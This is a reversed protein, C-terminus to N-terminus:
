CGASARELMERAHSRAQETVTIGGLMRALEEVRAQDNLRIVTTATSGGSNTKHVQMHTHCLSAVQPLHTVCFVQRREGLDRLLQGVIEAVRGSIGSDVEDFVLTPVVKDGLACVQIALSIRSLEGGSAIKILPRFPQGANSRILFEVRDQGEPAPDGEPETSIEVRLASAPMGLGRLADTVSKALQKASKQRDETLRAAADRYDSIASDLERQLESQRASATELAGLRAELDALQEPLDRLSVHHKRALEHLTGLREEVEALREPDADLGDIVQAVARGAEEINIAASEVLEIAEALAPEFRSVESLQRLLAALQDQLSDDDNTLRAYTHNCTGTLTVLNALRLQDHELTEIEERTIRLDRLEQVQYRLLERADEDTRGLAHLAELARKIDRYREYCRRVAASSEFHRGFDDLLTRQHESRLLSQHEHQGHIEALSSRLARLVQVPVPSDNVWARSRGEKNIQRRLMCEDGELGLEALQLSLTPAVPEFVATVEGREAGARLMVADARDGLAFGLAEIIISKGAGTEGTFATMGTTMDLDLEGIIAFNRITLRTLM